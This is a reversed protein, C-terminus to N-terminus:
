ESWNYGQVRPVSDPAASQGAGMGRPEGGPLAAFRSRDGIMTPKKAFGEQTHGPTFSVDAPGTQRHQFERFGLGPGANKKGYRRAM